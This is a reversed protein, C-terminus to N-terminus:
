SSSIKQLYSQFQSQTVVRVTILMTAHGLGCLEACQGHYTGTQRAEFWDSNTQGPIADIKPGLSPVWFDHIVDRATVLLKIPRGVPVVLVGQQQSQKGNPYTFNWGFQFAEVKVTMAGKPVDKVDPLRVFTYASLAALILIPVISWGLELRFSGHFQPPERRPDDRRERFRIAAYVLWGGVLVFITVTVGLVARYIDDIATADPSAPQEPTATDALAPAAALLFVVTAALGAALLGRLRHHRGFM